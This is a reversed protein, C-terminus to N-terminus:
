AWFRCTLRKRCPQRLRILRNGPICKAIAVDSAIAIAVGEVRTTHRKIRSLSLVAESIEPSWTSPRTIIQYKCINVVTFEGTKCFSRRGTMYKHVTKARVFLLCCVLVLWGVLWDVKFKMLFKSAASRSWEHSRMTTPSADDGPKRPPYTFYGDFGQPADFGQDINVDFWWSCDRWQSKHSWWGACSAMSYGGFVWHYEPTWYAKLFKKKSDQCMTPLTGVWKSLSAITPHGLNSTLHGKHWSRMAHLCCNAHATEKFKRQIAYMHKVSICEFLYAYMYM